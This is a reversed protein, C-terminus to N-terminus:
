TIFSKFRGEHIAALYFVSYGGYSAGIAGLRDNDVYPEKALEDIASLYDQMNQGGYDKSIQENWETGYGPMGRRNPAVIIYGNAAMLQFNWRFSYFQSLAGQPGGQCYLLTPYKKSPDFNPPYIVWTLMDKGDTTKIMRKEVNSLEISNYTADNAHTLQTMEGNRLNITYLEVAHNMDRRSAVITNKTQGIIGNVDFQGNTIQKPASTKDESSPVDIEFLQVTGLVPAVFYIKNGKDQWTFSNVTGDWNATLNIAKGDIKVIIDNKDSEYGDRKMQLWALKGKSSFSPQTDYGKNDFTLNTTTKSELNYEYIDTNTSSAYAVGSLKKTVYLISKSDPSWIYDESGGFPKQPCDFPEEGMIDIAKFTADTTSKYFIHSFAGDEWTDWHRYNLDDYIKVNSKSVDNYHDQGTVKELKVDATTIKYNGNPSVNRNILLKKYNTIEEAEGGTIPIQYTTSTKSNTEINFNSVSYILHTGDKTIGKGSVKNLQVLMEPTLVNQATLGILAM